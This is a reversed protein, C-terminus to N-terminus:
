MGITKGFMADIAFANRGTAWLIVVARGARLGALVPLIYWCVRGMDAVARRRLSAKSMVSIGGVGM